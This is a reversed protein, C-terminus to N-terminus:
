YTHQQYKYPYKKTIIQQQLKKIEKKKKKSKRKQQCPVFFDTRTLRHNVTLQTGFM